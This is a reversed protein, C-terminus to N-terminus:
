FPIDDRFGGSNRVSQPQRGNSKHDSNGGLFEVKEAIIKTTYKDQGNKDQWKETKIRGEVAVKRGKSLYKACNQATSGWVTVKHWETEEKWDGSKSKYRSTTAVKLEGVTNGNGVQRVEPDAGLNGIIIVKNM